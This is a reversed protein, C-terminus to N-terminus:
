LCVTAKWVLSEPRDHSVSTQCLFFLLPFFVGLGQTSSSVSPGRYGSMPAKVEPLLCTLLMNDAHTSWTNFDYRKSSFFFYILTVEHSSSPWPGYFWLNWERPRVGSSPRVTIYYQLKCDCQPVSAGSQLQMNGFTRGGGENSTSTGSGCNTQAVRSCRCLKMLHEPFLQTRRYWSLDHIYSCDVTCFHIPCFLLIGAKEFHM